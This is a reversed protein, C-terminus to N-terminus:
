NELTFEEKAKKAEVAGIFTLEGDESVYGSEQLESYLKKIEDLTAMKTDALSILADEISKDKEKVLLKLLIVKKEIESDKLGM